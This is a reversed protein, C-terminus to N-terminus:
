PVPRAEPSSTRNQVARAFKSQLTCIRSLGSIGQATVCEHDVDFFRLRPFPQQDKWTYDYGSRWVRCKLAIYTQYTLSDGVLWLTRNELAQVFQASTAEAERECAHSMLWRSTNCTYKSEGGWRTFYPCRASSVSCSTNAPM